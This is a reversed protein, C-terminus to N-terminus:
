QMSPSVVAVTLSHPRSLTMPSAATAGKTEWELGLGLRAQMSRSHRQFVKPSHNTGMGSFIDWMLLLFTLGDTRSTHKYYTCCVPVIKDRDSKSKAESGYESM